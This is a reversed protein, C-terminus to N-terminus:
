MEEFIYQLHLFVLQEGRKAGIIWMDSNLYVKASVSIRTYLFKFLIIKQIRMAMQM